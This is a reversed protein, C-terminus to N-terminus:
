LVQWCHRIEEMQHQLALTDNWNWYESQLLNSEICRGCERIQYEFGTSAFPESFHQVQGDNFKLEMQQAEQFDPFFITANSGCMTGHQPIVVGIASSVMACCGDDYHLLSFSRDDTGGDNFIATSHYSIPLKKLCLYPFALTYIGVDMLAGGGLSSSLKRELRIGSSIFGYDASIRYIDGLLGSSIFSQVKRILPLHAIWMGEMLFVQQKAALETLEHAERESCTFPKECLVHKRALLCRKVDEYHCANPSCVYVAQVDPDQLLQQHTYAKLAPFDKRYEQAFQEAADSSRSSVAYLQTEERMDRLTDAFQHAIKGTAMIGWSVM